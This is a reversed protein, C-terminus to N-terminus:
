VLRSYVFNQISEKFSSTLRLVYVLDKNHNFLKKLIHHYEPTRDTIGAKFFAELMKLKFVDSDNENEFWEDWSIKYKYSFLHAIIRANEIKNKHSLAM